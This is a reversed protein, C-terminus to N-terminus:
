GVISAELKADKVGVEQKPLTFFFTSGQGVKSELWIRGGYMEVIKKAVTLGIGTSEVEDRPALTQFLQFIKEFYKEEIGPGNDSVSFKWFGNEEICGIKIQGRPKDMYKVANSLLNQFVQTIRTRECVIVPLEDEVTITINEPPAIMDITDPVIENLNVQTKEEKVRGIRSYQLIGDILNHMRNVRNMLLDLQEKGEQDFKDAYDALIWNVLTNIGRLPAKLDHSVIYAFDKLEQNTKELQEMLVAQQKEADKLASINIFSEVLYKRGQWATPTVTKLIQMAEGNARLLVRESQDVSQGLDSIPCRGKEAPCIFKHCVKGIIDEKPLGILEAGLPNADVIKHTEADIIVVGTLISNLIINLRNESDRLAQEVKMRETIDRFIGQLLKQGRVEILSAKIAVDKIEGNKTIIKTELTQGQKDELHEQFTGSFKGKDNEPPHLIRQHQGILESKEREVLRTAAPNCDILIGTEADAVFIADIAGEFQVRYKEETRRLEEEAQKRIIVESTLQENASTLESTREQVKVELGEKAVLLESDRKQIQELMENFADILLGVEDNYHKIARTSYDKKESVTKALGALSLIPRSIIRQLRSSVLFVVLLSIFVVAIIIQISRKLTTHVFELDSQLCVTGIKENDLIVPSFITLLGGGFSYDIKKSEVPLTKIRDDDRYYAAFLKNQNDYVCGLTISSDVRLSQLVKEADKNDQFALAAKCNEAVMAARTSLTRVMNRRLSNQEWAIFAVGALILGTLCALMVITILKYKITMNRLVAMIM